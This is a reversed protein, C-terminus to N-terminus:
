VRKYKMIYTHNFEVVNSAYCGQPMGNAYNDQLNKFAVVITGERQNMITRTVKGCFM